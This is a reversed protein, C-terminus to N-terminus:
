SQHCAGEHFRWDPAPDYFRDSGTAASEVTIGLIPDASVDDIQRGEFYTERGDNLSARYEAGTMM